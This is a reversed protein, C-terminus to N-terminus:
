GLIFSTNLGSFNSKIFLEYKIPYNNFRVEIFFINFWKKKLCLILNKYKINHRKKKPIKIFM